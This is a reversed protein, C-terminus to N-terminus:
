LISDDWRKLSRRFMTNIKTFIKYDKHTIIDSNMTTNVNKTGEIAICFQNTNFHIHFNINFTAHFWPYLIARHHNVPM